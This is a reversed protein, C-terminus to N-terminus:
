TTRIQNFIHDVLIDMILRDMAMIQNMHHIPIITTEKVMVMTQHMHRNITQHARRFTFQMQIDMIGKIMLTIQRQDMFPLHFIQELLPYM